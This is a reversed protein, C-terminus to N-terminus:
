HAPSVMPRARLAELMRSARRAHRKMAYDFLAAQEQLMEAVLSSQDASPLTLYADAEGEGQVYEIRMGAKKAIHMMTSNRSLCQMYLVTVRTNRCHIAAREFLKSGVTRGRATQLVSIGLEATRMGEDPLYGLHGVGLLELRDGYVGFVADRAFDIGRVYNEIVRDPVIQGFRLLRDNESLALFHPLL